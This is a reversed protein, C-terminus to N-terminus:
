LSVSLFPNELHKKSFIFFSDKHFSPYVDGFLPDHRIPKSLDTNYSLTYRHKKNPQIMSKCLDGCEYFQRKVPSYSKPFPDSEVLELENLDHREIVIDHDEEFTAHEAKVRDSTCSFHSENNIIADIPYFVDPLSSLNSLEYNLPNNQLM